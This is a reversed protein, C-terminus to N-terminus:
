QYTLMAKGRHYFYAHNSLVEERKLQSDNIERIMDDLEKRKPSCSAPVIIVEHISSPLLYYDDQILGAIHELVGPMLMCTSGHLREANSLIYMVDEEIAELDFLQNTTQEMVQKLTLFEAQTKSTYNECAIEHIAHSTVNWQLLHQETIEETKQCGNYEDSLVYYAINLDLFTKYLRNQSIEELEYKGLLRLFIRDRVLDFAHNPEQMLIVVGQNHEINIHLQEM